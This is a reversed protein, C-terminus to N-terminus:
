HGLRFILFITYKLQQEWVQSASCYQLLIDVIMFNGKCVCKATVLIYSLIYLPLNNKPSAPSSQM